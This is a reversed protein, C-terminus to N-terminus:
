VVVVMTAVAVTSVIITTAVMMVITMAMVVEMMTAFSGGGVSLVKAAVTIAEGETLLCTWM